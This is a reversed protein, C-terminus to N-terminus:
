CGSSCCVFHVQMRVLAILYLQINVETPEATQVPVYAAAARVTKSVDDCCLSYFLSLLWLFTSILCRLRCPCPTCHVHLVADACWMSPLPACGHLTCTLYSSGHMHLVSCAANFVAAGSPMAMPASCCTCHLTTFSVQCSLSCSSLSSTSSSSTLLVSALPWGAGGTTSLCALPAWFAMVWLRQQTSHTCRTKGTVQM